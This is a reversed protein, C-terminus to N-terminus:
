SSASMRAQMAYPASIARSRKTSTGISALDQLEWLQCNEILPDDDLRTVRNRVSRPQQPWRVDLPSRHAQAPAPGRAILPLSSSPTTDKTRGCGTHQGPFSKSFCYGTALLWHDTALRRNDTSTGGTVLDSVCGM